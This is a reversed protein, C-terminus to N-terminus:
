PRQMAPHAAPGAEQATELNNGAAGEQQRGTGAEESRKAPRSRVENGGRPWPLPRPGPRRAPGEPRQQDHYGRHYSFLAFLSSAIAIVLLPGLYDPSLFIVLTSLAQGTESHSNFLAALAALMRGLVWYVGGALALSVAVELAIRVEKRLM